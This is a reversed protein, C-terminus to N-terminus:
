LIINNISSIINDEGQETFWIYNLIKESWGSILNNKNSSSSIKTGHGALDVSHLWCEPNINERYKQLMSNFQKDYNNGYIQMDSFIIIRDVKINNTLLYDVTLYGFTSYGVNQKNLYKTISLVSDRNNINVRKFTSGFLSNINDECSKVLLAQMLNSIDKYTVSSDKSLQHDMSGSNDSCSFTVGKLKPMNSVSYDIAEELAKLLVSHKTSYKPNHELSRYASLFRFPLQKSKNIENPNSIKNAIIDIYEKKVNTKVMNNLNRIMAMYPLKNHDILDEWIEPRNGNASIETEWTMPIILNDDLIKKFIKSQTDDKPNPHVIKIIDKFSPSTKNNYKGYQYEDFNNLIDSLGKRLQHIQKPLKQNHQNIFSILEKVQDPRTIIQQMTRRGLASEKNLFLLGLIAVPATRLNLYKRAFIASKAIFVPDEKILDKAISILEPTTDGYYKEEKYLNTFLNTIFKEKKSMIFANGGAKNITKTTNSARIRAM